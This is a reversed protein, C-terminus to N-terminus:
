AGGATVREFEDIVAALAFQAEGIKVQLSGYHRDAQSVGNKALYEGHRAVNRNRTRAQRSATRLPAMGLGDERGTALFYFVYERREKDWSCNTIDHGQDLAFHRVAALDDGLTWNKERGLATAMETLSIGPDGPHQCIFEYMAQRREEVEESM